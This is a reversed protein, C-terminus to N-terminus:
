RAEAGLRTSAAIIQAQWREYAAETLHVGDHTMAASLGGEDAPLAEAPDAFTAGAMQAAQAIAANLPGIQAAGRRAPPLLGPRIPPVGLVVLEARPWRARLRGLLVGMDRAVADADIVAGQGAARLAEVAGFGLVVVAPSVDPLRDAIALGARLTMGQRACNVALAGPFRWDGDHMQSNGFLLVARRGIAAREPASPRCTLPPAPREISLRGAAFGAALLAAAIAAALVTRGIM